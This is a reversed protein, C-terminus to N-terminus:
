KDTFENKIPESLSTNEKRKSTRIRIVCIMWICLVIAAGTITGFVLGAVWILHQSWVPIASSTSSLM